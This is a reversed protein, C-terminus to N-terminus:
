RATFPPRLAIAADRFTTDVLTPVICHSDALPSIPASSAAAGTGTVLAALVAVAATATTWRPRSPHPAPDLRPM